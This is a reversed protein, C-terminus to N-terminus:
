LKIAKSYDAKYWNAQAEPSLDKEFKGNVMGGVRSNIEKGAEQLAIEPAYGLKMIAGVAFVIVDCYADVIPSEGDDVKGAFNNVMDLWAFKLNDRQEKPIDYGHAEFLEELINVNENIADFPKKDLGRDSQFKMIEPIVRM